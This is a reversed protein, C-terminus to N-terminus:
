NLTEPNNDWFVKNVVNVDRQTASSNLNVYVSPYIVTRIWVGPNTQITPQMGRPASTRRYLNYAELGNGWLAKWAEKGVIDMKVGAADYALGVATRYTTVFNDFASGSGPVWAASSWPAITVSQTKGDAFTKISQISNVIAKDLLAKANASNARAAVEAKLYDTYPFM